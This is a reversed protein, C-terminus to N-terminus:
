SLCNYQYMMLVQPQSTWSFLSTDRLIASLRGDRNIKQYVIHALVKCKKAGTAIAGPVTFVSWDSSPESHYLINISLQM